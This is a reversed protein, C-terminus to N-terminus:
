GRKWCWRPDTTSSVRSAWRSTPAPVGRPHAPPNPTSTAATAPPQNTRATSRATTSTPPRTGRRSRLGPRCGNSDTTPNWGPDIFWPGNGQGLLSIDPVLDIGRSTATTTVKAVTAGAGPGDSTSPVTQDDASMAPASLGAPGKQPAAQPASDWMVPTPASFRAKGDTDVARLNGAADASVTLGDAVVDLHLKRVTPNAAAQATRVVLVQRWGGLTTATLELDVDPLVDKYLASDGNLVPKPLAFPAKLALKKGDGTTMTAMPGDGGGSFSLKSPVATPTITGDSNTALTPDVDQWAGDAKRVRQPAISADTSLTGDPNAVTASTATTLFGVIVPKGTSKAQTRAADLATEDATRTKPPAAPWDTDAPGFTRDGAAAATPVALLGLGLSLM